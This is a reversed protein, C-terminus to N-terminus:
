QVVVRQFGTRGRDDTVRVVYVGSPLDETSFEVMVRNGPELSRVLVGTTNLLELSRVPETLSVTFHGAAPNPFISFRAAEEEELGIFVWYDCPLQSLHVSISDNEFCRLYYTNFEIMGDGYCVNGLPAFPTHYEMFGFAPYIRTPLCNPATCDATYSPLYVSDFGNVVDIYDVLVGGLNDTGTGVVTVMSSSGCGGLTDDPGVRWSDGVQANAYFLLYEEGSPLWQAYVSDNSVRYFHEHSIPLYGQLYDGPNPGTQLFYTGSIELREWLKGNISDQGVHQMKKYGSYGFTDYLFYWTGGEGFYSQASLSASSLVLLSFLLTKRIM